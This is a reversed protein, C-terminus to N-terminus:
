IKMLRASVKKRAIKLLKETNFRRAKPNNMFIGQLDDWTDGVKEMVITNNKIKTLLKAGKEIGLYKVIDSPITVQNKSSVSIINLM